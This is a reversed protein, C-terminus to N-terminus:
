EPDGILIFASWYYPHEYPHASLATERSPGTKTGVREQRPLDKQLRAVDEASLTRLWRKAEALAEAKPLPKKLDQRHGLLNEYFRTMLLATATDDVQWLSLVVSRAGALFIAQAFGVYGEGGEYRESVGTQCASLTVLDADLKWHHLIHDATLRGDYVEKGALVQELSNPLRDQALILASQLASRADMQGHTAFHLYRFRRLAGFDALKDLDQESAESGLLIKPQAFLRAIAQVEVRTGPLRDYFKGRSARLARDGDRQAQIAVSAPEPSPYVGLKGPPVNVKLEKGERWITLSIAKAGAATAAKQIAPGLDAPGSLKTDGYRLLVDGAKLGTRAAPSDAIVQHLLVGHDPPPIEPVSAIEPRAFVPDGLALLSAAAADRTTRAAQRRQEHQWAFVTGSPAYSITYHDTLAEVPIGRLAPSPLIIFAKPAPRKSNAQLYSEVPALRQQYLQRTLDNGTALDTPRQAYGLQVQNPLEEDAETWAQGPGTGPLKIWVPDGKRYVLCAWHEGNPDAAHPEGRIDL